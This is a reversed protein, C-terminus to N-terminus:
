CHWYFSFCNVLEISTESKEKFAAFTYDNYQHIYNGELLEVDVVFGPFHKESVM